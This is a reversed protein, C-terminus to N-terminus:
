PSSHVMYNDITKSSIPIYPHVTSSDTPPQPTIILNKITLIFNSPLKDTATITVIKNAQEFSCADISISSASCDLNIPTQLGYGNFDIVIVQSETGLISVDISM